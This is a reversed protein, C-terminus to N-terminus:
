YGSSSCLVLKEDIPGFREDEEEWRVARLCEEDEPSLDIRGSGIADGPADSLLLARLHGGKRLGEMITEFGAETMRTASM